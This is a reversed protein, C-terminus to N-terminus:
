LFIYMFLSSLVTTLGIMEMRLSRVDSHNLSIRVVTKDLHRLVAASSELEIGRATKIVGESDKEEKYKLKKQNKKARLRKESLGLAEM